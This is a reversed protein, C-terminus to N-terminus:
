SRGRATKLHEDLCRVVKDDRMAQFDDRMADFPKLTDERLEILCRKVEELTPREAVIWAALDRERPTPETM